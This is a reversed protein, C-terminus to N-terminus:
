HDRLEKFCTALRRVSLRVALNEANGLFCRAVACFGASELDQRFVFRVVSGVGTVKHLLNRIQVM